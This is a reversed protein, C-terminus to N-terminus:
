SPINRHRSRSVTIEQDQDPRGRRYINLPAEKMFDRWTVPPMDDRIGATAGHPEPRRPPMKLIERLNILQLSPPIEGQLRRVQSTPVQRERGTGCEQVTLQGKGVRMIKAPLSWPPAYSGANEAVAATKAEYTSRLFVIWDGEAYDESKKLNKFHSQATAFTM